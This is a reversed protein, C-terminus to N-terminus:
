DILNNKIESKAKKKAFVYTVKRGLKTNLLFNAVKPAVGLEEAVSKVTSKQFRKAVRDPTFVYLGVVVLMFVIVAYKIVKMM